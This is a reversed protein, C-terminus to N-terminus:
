EGGTMGLQALSVEYMLDAVCETLEENTMPNVSEVANGRVLKETQVVNEDNSYSIENSENELVDYRHTFDSCDKIINGDDDYIMFGSLNEETTEYYLTVIHGYETYGSIDIYKDSNSYKIKLMM